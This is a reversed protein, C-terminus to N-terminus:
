PRKIEELTAATETAGSLDALSIIGAIRAGDELVILRSVQHEEMLMRAQEVDDDIQCYVPATTMLDRVSTDYSKGESVLRVAIDRDTITGVLRDSDCVPLFGIDSERMMAAAARVSDDVAITQVHDTMIEKCLM